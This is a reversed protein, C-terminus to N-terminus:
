KGAPCSQGLRVVLVLGAVLVLELPLVLVGIQVPVPLLEPLAALQLQVARLSPLPVPHPLVPQAAQVAQAMARLQVNLALLRPAAEQQLSAVRM